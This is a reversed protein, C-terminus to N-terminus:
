VIAISGRYDFRDRLSILNGYLSHEETDDLYFIQADNISETFILKDNDSDYGKFYEGIHDKDKNFDPNIKIVFPKDM